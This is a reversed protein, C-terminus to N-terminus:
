CKNSNNIDEYKPTSISINKFSTEFQKFQMYIYVHIHLACKLLKPSHAIYIIFNFVKARISDSQTNLNPRITRIYLMEVLCEWKTSCKKLM